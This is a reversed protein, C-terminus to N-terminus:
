EEDIYIVNRPTQKQRDEIHQTLRHMSDNYEQALPEAFLKGQSGLGVRGAHLCVLNHYEVPIESTDAGAALAALRKTYWVRLEYTETPEVVGLKTGRLYCCPQTTLFPWVNGMNDLHRRQFLVWKAPIADGSTVVREAQIIKMLDTPLTFELSTVTPVVNYCQCASFFNEDAENIVKQIEEQGINILATVEADTLLESNRDDLYIRARAIMETLTM